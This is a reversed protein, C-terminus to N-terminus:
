LVVAGMMVMVWGETGLGGRVAWLGECGGRVVVVVVGWGGIVTWVARCELGGVVVSIM